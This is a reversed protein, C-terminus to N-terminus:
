NRLEPRDKCDVNFPFDCRGGIGSNVGLDAFVLGDACLKESLVFNECEYYRDCQVTDAFVGNKEPCDSDAQQGYVLWLCNCHIFTKKCLYASCYVTFVTSFYIMQCPSFHGSVLSWWPLTFTFSRIANLKWVPLSKSFNVQLSSSCSPSSSSPWKSKKNQHLEDSLLEIFLYATFFCTIWTATRSSARV